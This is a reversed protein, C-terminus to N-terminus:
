RVRQNSKACHSRQQAAASLTRRAWVCAALTDMPRVALRSQEDVSILYAHRYRAQDFWPEIQQASIVCHYQMQLSYGRAKDTRPIHHYKLWDRDRQGQRVAERCGALDTIAPEHLFVSQAMTSDNLGATALLYVQEQEAQASLGVLALLGLLGQKM